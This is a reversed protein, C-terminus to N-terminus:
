SGSPHENSVAIAAVIGGALAGLGVIKVVHGNTLYRRFYGVPRYPTYQGPYQGRAVPGGAVVLISRNASPPSTSATWLRYVGTTDGATVTYVSGSLGRVAFKGDEGTATRGVERDVSRVTVTSHAVGVGGADLLQGSLTGQEGM